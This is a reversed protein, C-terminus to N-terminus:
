TDYDRTVDIRSIPWPGGNALERAIWAAVMLPDVDAPASLELEVRIM